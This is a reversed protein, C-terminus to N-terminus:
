ALGRRHVFRSQCRVGRGDAGCMLGHDSRWVRGLALGRFTRFTM